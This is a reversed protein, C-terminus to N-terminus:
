REGFRCDTLNDTRFILIHEQVFCDHKGQFTLFGGFLLQEHLNVTRDFLALDDHIHGFRNYFALFHRKLLHKDATDTDVLQRYVILHNQIIDIGDILFQSLFAPAVLKFKTFQFLFILSAQFLSHSIKIKRFGIEYLYIVVMFTIIEVM